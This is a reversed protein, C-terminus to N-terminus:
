NTEGGLAIVDKALLADSRRVQFVVTHEIEADALLAHIVPVVAGDSTEAITVPEDDDVPEDEAGFAEAIRSWYVMAILAGNLLIVIFRLTGDFPGAVVVGSLPTLALAGVTVLVLVSRAWAQLFLLGIAAVLTVALFLNTTIASQAIVSGRGAFELAEQVAAPQEFATYPLNAWWIYLLAWVVVVVRFRTVNL